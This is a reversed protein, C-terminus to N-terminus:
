ESGGFIAQTAESMEENLRHYQAFDPHTAGERYRNYLQALDDAYRHLAMVSSRYIAELGSQLDLYDSKLLRYVDPSYQRLLAKFAKHRLVVRRGDYDDRGHFTPTFQAQLFKNFDVANFVIFVWLHIQLLDQDTVGDDQLISILNLWAQRDCTIEEVLTPDSQLVLDIYDPSLRNASMQEWLFAKMAQREFEPLEKPILADMRQRTKPHNLLEEESVLSLGDEWETKIDLLLERTTALATRREDPRHHLIIHFSEHFLTFYLQILLQANAEERADDSISTLGLRSVEKRFGDLHARALAYQDTELSAHFLAYRVIAEGTDCGRDMALNYLALIVQSKPNFRLLVDTDGSLETEPFFDAGRTEEVQAEIRHYHWLSNVVVQLPTKYLRSEDEAIQLADSLTLMGREFHLNASVYRIADVADDNWTSRIARLAEAIASPSGSFRFAVAEAPSGGDFRNPQIKKITLHFKRQLTKFLSVAQEGNLNVHLSFNIQITVSRDNVVEKANPCLNEVKGIRSETFHNDNGPNGKINLDM